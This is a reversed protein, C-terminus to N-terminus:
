FGRNVSRPAVQRLSLFLLHARRSVKPQRRRRRRHRRRAPSLPNTPPTSLATSALWEQKEESPTLTKVVAPDIRAYTVLDPSWSALDEPSTVQEMGPRAGGGGLGAMDAYEL